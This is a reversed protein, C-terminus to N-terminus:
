APVPAAAHRPVYRVRRGPRCTRWLLWALGLWILVDGISFV